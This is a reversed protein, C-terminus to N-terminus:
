TPEENRKNRTDGPQEARAKDLLIAVINPRKFLRPFVDVIVKGVDNVFAFAPLRSGHCCGGTRHGFQVLATFPIKPGCWGNGTRTDASAPLLALIDGIRPHDGDRAGKHQAFAYQLFKARFPKMSVFPAVIDCDRGFNVLM